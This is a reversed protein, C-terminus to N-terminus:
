PLGPCDLVVDGSLRATAALPGTLSGVSGHAPHTGAEARQGLDSRAWRGRLDRRCWQKERAADVLQTHAPTPGYGLGRARRGLRFLVYEPLNLWQQAESDRRLGQSRSRRAAPLAHQHAHAPDGTLERLRDHCCSASPASSRPPKMTREIATATPTKSRLQGDAGYASTTSPGAMSPSPM